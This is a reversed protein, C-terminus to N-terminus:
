NITEQSNVKLMFGRLLAKAVTQYQYSLDQFYFVNKKETELALTLM